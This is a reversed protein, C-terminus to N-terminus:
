AQRRATKSWTPCTEPRRPGTKLWTAGTKARTPRALGSTPRAGHSSLSSFLLLPRTERTSACSITTKALTKHRNQFQSHSGCFTARCLFFHPQAIHQKKCRNQMVKQPARCFDRLTLSTSACSTSNKALAKRREHREQFPQVACSFLPTARHATKQLPKADSKSPRSLLERRVTKQM